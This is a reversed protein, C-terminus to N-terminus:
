YGESDSSSNGVSFKASYKTPKLDLGIFSLMKLMIQKRYITHSKDAKKTYM